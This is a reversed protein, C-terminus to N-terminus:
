FVWDNKDLVGQERKILSGKVKKSQIKQDQVINLTNKQTFVYFYIKSSFGAENAEVNSTPLRRQRQRQQKRKRKQKNMIDMTRATEMISATDMIRTTTTTTKTTRTTSKEVASNFSPQQRQKSRVRPPQANDKNQKKNSSAAEFNKHERPNKGGLSDPALDIIGRAGAPTPRRHLFFTPGYTLQRRRYPVVSSPQHQM